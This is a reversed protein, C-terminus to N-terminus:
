AGLRETLRKDLRDKRCGRQRWLALLVVQLAWGTPGCPTMISIREEIASAKEDLATARREADLDDGDLALIQDAEATLRAREQWLRIISEDDDPHDEATAAPIGSDETTM